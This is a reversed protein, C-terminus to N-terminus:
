RDHEPGGQVSRNLWNQTWPFRTRSMENDSWGRNVWHGVLRVVNIHWQNGAKIRGIVSDVNLGTVLNLGGGGNTQGDTNPEVADDRRAFVREFEEPGFEQRRDKYVKLETIETRRGGKVPWAITGGLRMVRSPNCVTTDGLLAEALFRLLRRYRGPDTIPEELSWWLQARTHPHRGTVTVLPPSLTAAEYAKKAIEPAGEDDLDVHLAWTAHFDNDKARTSSSTGPKRLAAGVYVNCFEQANVKLAKEAAADLDGVDFLEAHQLRKTKTDTWAIEIMGDMARGFLYELHQLMADYDPAMIPEITASLSM